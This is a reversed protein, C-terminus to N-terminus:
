AQRPIINHGGLRRAPSSTVLRRRANDGVGARVRSSEDELGHFAPEARCGQVQAQIYPCVDEDDDYVSGFVTSATASADADSWTTSEWEDSLRAVATAALLWTDETRAREAQRLRM